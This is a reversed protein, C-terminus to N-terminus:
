KTSSGTLGELGRLGWPVARSQFSAAMGLPVTPDPGPGLAARSAGHGALSDELHNHLRAIFLDLHITQHWFSWVQKRRTVAGRQFEPLHPLAATLDPQQGQPQAPWVPPTLPPAHPWVPHVPQCYSKETHQCLSPHEIKLALLEKETVLGDQTQRGLMENLGRGEPWARIVKPASKLCLIKTPNTGLHPIAPDFPIYLSISRIARWLVM